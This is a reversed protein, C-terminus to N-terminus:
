CAGPDVDLSSVDKKIEAANGAGSRSKRSTGPFGPGPAPVFVRGQGSAAIGELPYRIEDLRNSSELGQM